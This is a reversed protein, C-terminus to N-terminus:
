SCRNVAPLCGCGSSVGPLKQGHPRRRPSGNLDPVLINDAIWQTPLAGNHGSVMIIGGNNGGGNCRAIQDHSAAHGWGHRPPGVGQARGTRLTGDARLARATGFLRGTYSSRRGGRPDFMSCEALLGAPTVRCAMSSQRAPVWSM